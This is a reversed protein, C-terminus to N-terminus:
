IEDSDAKGLRTDFSWIKSRTEPRGGSTRRNQYQMKRNRIRRAYEIDKVVGFTCYFNFMM